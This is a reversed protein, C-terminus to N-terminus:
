FIKYLQLKPFPEFLLGLSFVFCFSIILLTIKIWKKNFM